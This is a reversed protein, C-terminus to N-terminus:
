SLIDMITLFADTTIVKVGLAKAKEVKSGPNIGAIVATTKKSVSSTVDGGEARILQVLEDRGYDSFTGTIVFTKGSFKTGIKQGEVKQDVYVFDALLRRVMMLGPNGNKFFEVVNRATIEGVGPLKLLDEVRAVILMEISNYHQAITDATTVGVEPIGIAYLFRGFTVRRKDRVENILTQINGPKIGVRRFVIPSWNPIDMIDCPTATEMYELLSRITKGGIGKINMAKRSVFHELRGAMAEKCYYNNCSPIGDTLVVPANCCPCETPTEIPQRVTSQESVATIKPIVDGARRVLVRDNIAVGLRAIENPNFLTANSITVGGIEVPKLKAVPTIAGTRGVQWVVDLLRTSEERAPFKFAIAWLPFKSTTGYVQHSLTFDVKFVVGDIDYALSDRRELMANYYAMCEEYSNCGRIHKSPELGMKALASLRDLQSAPVNPDGENISLEYAYLSLKRKATVKPDSQRLSGAAANRPNAFPKQGSGLAQLNLSDFVAIPMVIEGRCNFDRSVPDKIVKPIETIELANLTVDEGIEGDGRTCATVLKGDIYHLDISLGDYKPEAVMGRGGSPQQKLGLAVTKDYWAKFEEPTYVNDLSYMQKLHALPRLHKSPAGVKDLVSVTPRWSPHDDYMDRLRRVMIDYESDGIVPEDDQYYLKNHHAIQRELDAADERVASRSSFESM